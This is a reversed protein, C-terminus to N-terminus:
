HANPSNGALTTLGIHGRHEPIFNAVETTNVPQVYGKTVAEAGEDEQVPPWRVELFFPVGCSSSEPGRCSYASKVM